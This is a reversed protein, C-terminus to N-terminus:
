YVSRLSWLRRHVDKRQTKTITAGVGIEKSSMLGDIFCLSIQQQKKTDRKHGGKKCKVKRADWAPITEPKKWEKDVATKADPIKMAQLM